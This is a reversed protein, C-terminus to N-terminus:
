FVWKKFGDSVNRLRLGKNWFIPDRRHVLPLVNFWQRPSRRSDRVFVGHYQTSSPLLGVPSPKFSILTYETVFSSVWHLILLPPVCWLSYSFVSQPETNILSRALILHFSIIAEWLCQYCTSNFLTFLYM